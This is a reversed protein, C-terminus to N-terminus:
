FNKLQCNKFSTFVINHFIQPGIHVRLPDANIDFSYKLNSQSLFLNTNYKQKMRSIKPKVAFKISLESIIPRIQLILIIKILQIDTTQIKLIQSNTAKLGKPNPTILSLFIECSRVSNFLRM